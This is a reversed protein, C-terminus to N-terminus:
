GDDGSHEEQEKAAILERRSWCFSFSDRGVLLSVDIAFICGTRHYRMRWCLEINIAIDVFSVTPGHRM